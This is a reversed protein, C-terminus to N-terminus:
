INLRQYVADVNRLQYQPGRSIVRTSADDPALGLKNCAIANDRMM